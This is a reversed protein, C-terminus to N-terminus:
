DSDQRGERGPPEKETRSVTECRWARLVSSVEDRSLARATERDLGRALWAEYQTFRHRIHAVVALDVAEDLYGREVSMTGVRATGRACAFAAIRVEEGDPCGPFRERVLVAFGAMFAHRDVRRAQRVPSSRHM